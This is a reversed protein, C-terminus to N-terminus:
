MVDAQLCEVTMCVFTPGDKSYMTLERSRRHVDDRVVPVWRGQSVDLTVWGSQTSRRGLMCRLTSTSTHKYM